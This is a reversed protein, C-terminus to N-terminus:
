SGQQRRIREKVRDVSESVRANPNLEYAKEYSTLSQTYDGSREYLYGLREYSEWHDSLYRISNRFSAEAQELQDSFLQSLGLNFWARGDEPSNSLYQTFHQIAGSYDENQLATVGERYVAQSLYKKAEQSDPNLAAAQTLFQKAETFNGLQYQAIGLQLTDDYQGRQISISKTLDQVAESYKKLNFYASGRTHYLQYRERPSRALNESRLLRAITEEYRKLNFRAVASGYQSAFKGPDLEVAKDFAAIADEYRGLRLYCDGLVRHGSEYDPSEAVIAEFETAAKDFQGQKYYSVAKEFDGQARSPTSLIWFLFASIITRSLASKTLRDLM